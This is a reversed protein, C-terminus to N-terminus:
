PTPKQYVIETNSIKTNAALVNLESVLCWYVPVPGSWYNKESKGPPTQPAFVRMIRPHSSPLGGGWSIRPPRPPPLGGLKIRPPRPPPLGGLLIAFDSFVKTAAM